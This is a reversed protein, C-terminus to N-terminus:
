GFRWPAVVRASRPWLGTWRPERGAAALIARAKQCDVDMAATLEAASAFKEEPRIWGFFTVIVEEGYLDDSFDFLYVELLPPGNDFTPRRGFSAVGDVVTGDARQLRVAYVGHRLRCDDGLRLNATPYGLTHGRRDGAVVAAIVFWRYGLLRNAGAVDGDALAERIVTSAIPSGGDGAVEGVVKM